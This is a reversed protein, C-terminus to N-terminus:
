LCSNALCRGPCRDGRGSRTTAWAGICRVFGEARWAPQSWTLRGARRIINYRTLVQRIALPVAGRWKKICFLVGARYHGASVGSAGGRKPPRIDRTALM